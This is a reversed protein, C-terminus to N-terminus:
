KSCESVSIAPGMTHHREPGELSAVRQTLFVLGEAMTPHTFLADRLLTYPSGALMAVQVAALLESAEAGFATFGLIRDSEAEVLIKLFGRNESITRTRLIEAMPMSAMRYRINKEAAECENLGVRVLEPDTFLCFPVLRGRTSRNGGNLNDRVVRFDDYAAHTFHPSGACDGLAWVNEATTELRDNVQVYGRADLAVGARDLGASQTNPTRGSAVLLDTAEIERKGSPGEISLRVKEGSVGAVELVTSELAVEIGEDEFLEKLAFGVESDERAALRPAKEIVTVSSGFRRMAQAFELGVFGGGLVVVHEPLRDLDLAEIHTMPKATTIGPIVPITARTGLNLFVREAEIVRPKSDAHRVEVIRRGVFRGEGMILEAGSQSFKGQQLERLGTVMKQKRRLVGCMNPALPGGELGFEQARRALAAIKASHIVNKTPMCAINPCSGGILKREVVATRQGETALTWALYKGAEGSGIVLNEYHEM